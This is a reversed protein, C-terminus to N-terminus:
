HSHNHLVSLGGRPPRESIRDRVKILGRTRGEAEQALKLVRLPRRRKRLAPARCSNADDFQQWGEHLKHRPVGFTRIGLEPKTGFEVEIGTITLGSLGTLTFTGTEWISPSHVDVSSNESYTFPSSAGTGPGIILDDPQGGVSGTGATALFLTKGVTAVGWHDIAGAVFTGITANMSILQGASSGLTIAGPTTSFTIQLGSIEDAASNTLAFANPDWSVQAPILQAPHARAM